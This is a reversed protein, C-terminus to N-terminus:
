DEPCDRHVLTSHAMAREPCAALSHTLRATLVAPSQLQRRHPRAAARSSSFHTWGVHVAIAVARARGIPLSQGLVDDDFLLVQKM